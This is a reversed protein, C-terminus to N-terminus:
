PISIEDCDHAASEAHATCYDGGCHDCHHREGAAEVSNHCVRHRPPQGRTCCECSYAFAGYSCSLGPVVEEPGYKPALRTRRPKTDAEARQAPGLRARPYEIGGLPRGQEDNIRAM